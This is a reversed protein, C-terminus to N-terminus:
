FEKECHIKGAKFLEAVIPLLEKLTAKYFEFNSERFSRVFMLVKAQNINNVVLLPISPLKTGNKKEM